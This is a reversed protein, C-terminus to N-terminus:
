TRRGRGKEEGGERGDERRGKDECEWNESSIKDIFWTHKQSTEGQKRAEWPDHVIPQNDKAKCRIGVLSYTCVTNDKQTQTVESLITRELEVWKCAFKLNDSNKVGTYYEM